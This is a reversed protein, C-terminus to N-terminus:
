GILLFGMLLSFNKKGLNFFNNKKKIYFKRMGFNQTFFLKQFGFKLQNKIKKIYVIFKAMKFKREM